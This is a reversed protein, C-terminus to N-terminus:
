REAQKRKKRHRPASAEGQWYQSPRCFGRNGAVMDMRCSEFTRYDCRESSGRGISYVGCWPGNYYAQAPASGLLTAAALAALVLTTKKM